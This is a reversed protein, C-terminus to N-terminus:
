KKCVLPRTAPIRRDASQFCNRKSVNEKFDYITLDLKTEKKLSIFFCLCAWSGISWQSPYSFTFISSSFTRAQPNHPTTITLSSVKPPRPEIKLQTVIESKCHTEGDSITFHSLCVILSAQSPTLTLTLTLTPSPLTLNISWYGM